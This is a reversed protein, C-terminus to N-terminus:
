SPAIELAAAVRQVTGSGTWNITNQGAMKYEAVQAISPNAISTQSGLATFGTGSTMANSNQQVLFGLVLNAADVGALTVGPTTTSGSPATASVQVPTTNVGTIEVVRWVCGETTAGPTITIAGSGGAGVATWIGAKTFTNSTAQMARNTWTLSGSLATSSLTAATSGSTSMGTAVFAVLLTGTGRAFSATTFTTGDTTSGSATLETVTPAAVGAAVTGILTYDPLGSPVPDGSNIYVIPHFNNTDLYAGISTNVDTTTAGRDWARLAHGATDYLITVGDPGKFPPLYHTSDVTISTAPTTLSAGVLFDTVLTGGPADYLNVTTGSAILALAKRPTTETGVNTADESVAVDYIGGGFTYRTM